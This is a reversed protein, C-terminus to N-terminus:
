VKIGPPVSVKTAVDAPPKGIPGQIPSLGILAQIDGEVLV